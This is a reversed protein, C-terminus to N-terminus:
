SYPKSDTMEKMRVGMIELEYFHAQQQGELLVHAEDLAKEIHLQNRRLARDPTLGHMQYSRLSDFEDVGMTRRRLKADDLPVRRARAHGSHHVEVSRPAGTYQVQLDTFRLDKFGPPPRLSM